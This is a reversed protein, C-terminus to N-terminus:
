EFAEPCQANLAALATCRSCMEMPDKRNRKNFAICDLLGVSTIYRVRSCTAEEALACVRHVLDLIQERKDHDSLPDPYRMYRDALAEALTRKASSM